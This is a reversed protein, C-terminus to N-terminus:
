YWELNSLYFDSLNTIFKEEFWGMFINIQMALGVNLAWLAVKKRSIIYAM